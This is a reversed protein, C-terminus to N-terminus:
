EHTRRETRSHKAYLVLSVFNETTQKWSTSYSPRWSVWHLVTRSLRISGSILVGVVYHLITRSKITESWKECSTRDNYSYRKSSFLVLSEQIRKTSSLIVEPLAVSTIDKKM